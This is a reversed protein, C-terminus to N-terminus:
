GHRELVLRNTQKDVFVRCIARCDPSGEAKVQLHLMTGDNPYTLLNGPGKKGKDNFMIINGNKGHTGGFFWSALLISHEDNAPINGEYIKWPHTDGYKEPNQLVFVSCRLSKLPSRNKVSVNVTHKQLTVQLIEPKSITRPINIKLPHITWWAKRPAWFIAHFVMGFLVAVGIGVLCNRLPTQNDFLSVFWVPFIYAAFQPAGKWALLLASM